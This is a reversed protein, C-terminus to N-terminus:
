EEPPRGISAWDPRIITAASEALKASFGHDMLWAIVDRNKPHTTRDNKDANGWFKLAAQQQFALRNSIHGRGILENQIVPKKENSKSHARKYLSPEFILEYDEVIERMFVANSELWENGVNYVYDCEDLLEFVIGGEEDKPYAEKTAYQFDYKYPGTITPRHLFIWGNMYKTISENTRQDKERMLLLSDGDEDSWSVWKRILVKGWVISPTLGGEGVFYHIDKRECQWREMLEDFTFYKKKIEM